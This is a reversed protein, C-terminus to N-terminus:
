SKEFLLEPNRDQFARLQKEAEDLGLNHRHRLRDLFNERHKLGHHVDDETLHV